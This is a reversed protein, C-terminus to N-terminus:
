PHSSSIKIYELRKWQVSPEVTVYNNDAYKVSGVLIGAPVYKGDGSTFILEGEKVHSDYPLYSIELEDSNKGILIGRERSDSTLIPIRSNLDTILLVRSTIDGVESIRGVLGYNNIVIAGKQVNHKKGATVILSKTFPGNSEIIVRATVFNPYPETIFNSLKRLEINEAQVHKLLAYYQSLYLNEEKLQKNEEYIKVMDEIYTITDYVYQSPYGMWEITQALSDAIAPYFHHNFSYRTKGLLLFLFTLICVLFISIKKLVSRTIELVSHTRRSSSIDANQKKIM